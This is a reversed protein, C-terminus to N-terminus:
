TVREASAVACEAGLEVDDDVQPRDLAKLDAAFTRLVEVAHVCDGGNINAIRVRARTVRTQLEAERGHYVREELWRAGERHSCDRSPCALVLVGDVGGRLLHEIVSTHLDGACEIPYPVGGAARLEPAFIAAGHTAACM